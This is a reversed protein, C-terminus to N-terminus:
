TMEMMHGFSVNPIRKLWQVLERAKDLDFHNKDWECAHYVVVVDGEPVDNLPDFPPNHTYKVVDSGVDEGDYTKVAYDKPSLALVRFGLRRAVRISDRSMRWAPPRFIPRFVGSLGAESVEVGMTLFKEQAQDATLDRFEDNDSMGPVGHYHGHYGVEFRTASLARLEDCFQSHHTLYLPHSTTTDPKITRWYATPVFLTFKADPFSRIVEACSELVALSSRPHPSVDDISINVRM